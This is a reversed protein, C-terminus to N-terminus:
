LFLVITKLANGPRSLRRGPVGVGMATVALPRCRPAAIRLM